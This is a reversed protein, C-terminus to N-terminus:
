VNLYSLSALTTLCGFNSIVIINMICHISLYKRKLILYGGPFPMTSFGVSSGVRHRLGSLKIACHADVTRLGTHLSM